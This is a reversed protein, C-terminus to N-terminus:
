WTIQETEDIITILQYHKIFYLVVSDFLLHLYTTDFRKPSLIQKQM